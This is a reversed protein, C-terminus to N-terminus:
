PLFEKLIDEPVEALFARKDEVGYAIFVSNDKLVLGACFEVGRKQFFFPKGVKASAMGASFVVFRHTYEVPKGSGGAVEHVVALKKGDFDVVQSSGRLIGGVPKIAALDSTESVVVLPDTSYVFRQPASEGELIPMWNREYRPSKIVKEEVIANGSSIKFVIVDTKAVGVSQAALAVAATGYLDSGRYFLRVDEFGLLTAIPERLDGVVVFKGNEVKGLKNITKAGTTGSINNPLTRLCVTMTGDPALAVSPNLGVRSTDGPLLPIPIRTSLRKADTVTTRVMNQKGALADYTRAYGQTPDYPRGSEDYMTKGQSEKLAESTLM